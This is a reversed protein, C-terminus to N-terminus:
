SRKSEKPKDAAAPKADPYQEAARKSADAATQEVMKAEAPSVAPEPAPEAADNLCANYAAVDAIRYGQAQLDPWQKLTCDKQEGDADRIVSFTRDAM